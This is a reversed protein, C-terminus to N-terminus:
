LESEITNFNVTNSKALIKKNLKVLVNGPGVEIFNNLNNKKMNIIIENWHVPNELQKLLNEKINKAKKEPYPHTNQYIPIKADKFEVSKIVKTLSNRANKMLPSHFAGSTKLPIVKRLGMKKCREITEKISQNSGSLVIQESSNYNAVVLIETTNCLHNIQKKTADLIALMGGNNDEGAKQMESGRVKIIKLADKFSLVESSVLASYEGLSHGAVANPIYSNLKLIKNKVISNIFIAPQTFNTQNLNDFPDELSIKLIDFGLIEEAHSYYNNSIASYSELMNKGMGKFQSGQGPFLFTFSNNLKM